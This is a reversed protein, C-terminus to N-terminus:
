AGCSEGPAIFGASQDLMTCNRGSAMSPDLRVSSPAIAPAGLIGATNKGRPCRVGVPLGLRGTGVDGPCRTGAALVEKVLLASPLLNSKEAGGAAPVADGADRFGLTLSSTVAATSASGGQGGSGRNKKPPPVLLTAAPPAPPCCAEGRDCGRVPLKNAAAAAVASM